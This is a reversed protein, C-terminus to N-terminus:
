QLEGLYREVHHRYRRSVKLQIGNKLLLIYDGRAYPELARLYAANIFTSRHIRLFQSPDLREALTKMAIRMLHKKTATHLYVYSGAAEIWQVDDVEVVYVYGKSRVVLRQLYQTRKEALRASGQEELLHVLRATYTQGQKQQIHSQVRGITLAFREDDFPKQLYDLANLEFAKVAYQDYATVFVVLPWLPPDIQRLVEFGSMKPMKVDLFLVDPRLQRIAHIAEFGNSCQGILEFDHAEGILVRLNDRALPEDDVILARIPSM